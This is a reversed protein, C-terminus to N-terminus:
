KKLAKGFLAERIISSSLFIKLRENTEPHDDYSYFDCLTDWAANKKAQNQSMEQGWQRLAPSVLQPYKDALCLAQKPNAIFFHALLYEKAFKQKAQADTMEQLYSELVLRSFHDAMIEEIRSVLDEKTIGDDQNLDDYYDILERKMIIVPLWSEIEAQDRIVQHDADRVFVMQNALVQAIIRHAWALIKDRQAPDVLALGSIGIQRYQRLEEIFPYNELRPPLAPSLQETHNQKQEASPLDATLILNNYHFYADLSINHGIEHALVEILTARPVQSLFKHGITIESSENTKELEGSDTFIKTSHHMNDAEYPDTEDIRISFNKLGTKLFDITAANNATKKAELIKSLRDQIDQALADIYAYEESRSSREYYKSPTFDDAASSEDDSTSLVRCIEEQHRYDLVCEQPKGRFDEFTYLVKSQGLDKYYDAYLRNVLDDLDQGWTTGSVLLLLSLLIGQWVQM